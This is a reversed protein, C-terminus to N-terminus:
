FWGVVPGTRFEGVPGTVKRGHDLAIDIGLGAENGEGCRNGRRTREDANRQRSEPPRAEEPERLIGDDVVDRDVRREKRATSRTLHDPRNGVTLTLVVNSEIEACTDVVGRFLNEPPIFEQIGGGTDHGGVLGGLDHHVLEEHMGARSDADVDVTQAAVGVDIGGDREVGDGLPHVEAFRGGSGSDSILAWALM